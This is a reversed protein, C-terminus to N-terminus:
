STSSLSFLKQMRAILARQPSDDRNEKVANLEKNRSAITSGMTQLIEPHTELLPLLHKRKIEILVCESRCIVSATRPEGTCLAMEGFFEAHHISSVQKGPLTSAPTDSEAKFVDLTGDVVLYLSDGQDGQRVITEGPGFSQCISSAALTELQEPNLVSFIDVSALLMQKQQDNVDNSPLRAPIPEDRFERVIPYPISQDIRHLAYWVQEMVDSKLQPMESASKQWTLLRYIISSDAFSSVWVKPIPQLLVNRNNQLTRQLLQIAQRPPLSYDLGIDIFQGVPEDPKFRRLGEVAIRSNPVVTVSGDRSRIRTTMLRLSTVKGKTCGLDIWDGEEFPSDVQLSIGAFLNKLTEQAALGVVATVVASTAALGVLNIKFDRHIVVMTLATIVALTILDRLIKATPKWWGLEAPLQLLTWSSLRILSFTWLLTIATTLSKQLLPLDKHGVVDGVAILLPIGIAAILPMRLPPPTLNQGKCVRQLAILAVITLLSLGITM